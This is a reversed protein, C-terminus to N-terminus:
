QVSKANAGGVEPVYVMSGNKLRYATGAKAGQGEGIQGSSKYEKLENGEKVVMGMDPKGPNKIIIVDQTAFPNLPNEIVAILLVAIIVLFVDVINVVSLIPDDGDDDDLINISTRRRVPLAYQDPM